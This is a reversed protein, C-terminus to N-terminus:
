ESTSQQDSSSQHAKVFEKLIDIIVDFNAFFDANQQECVWQCFKSKNLERIITQGGDGREVVKEDYFCDKFLKVPFLNEIGDKVKTNETNEPIVRVWPGESDTEQKNTDYDYLLLMPQDFLWSNAEYVKQVRNLGSKGGDHTGKNVKIGVPRIELSNMLKVEGLLTLATQIYHTDLSGETLVVFKTEEAFHQEKGGLLNVFINNAYAGAHHPNLKLTDSYAKIAEDIRGLMMLTHGRQFMQEAQINEQLMGSLPDIQVQMEEVVKRIGDLVNQWGKSELRWESIPTGENPLVQFNSLQYNLWDCPELIIPIVRTNKDLSRVLEMNCIESDLSSASVLYLLLDSNALNRFIADRWREGGTIENDHWIDILGERKMVALLTILEEKAATDKHSYTVFIKLPKSM